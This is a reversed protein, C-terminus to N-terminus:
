HVITSVIIAVFEGQKIKLTVDDVAIVKNDGKGYAKTLNETELINM